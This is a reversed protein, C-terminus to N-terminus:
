SPVALPWRRAPVAPTDRLTPYLRYFIGIEFPARRTFDGLPRKSLNARSAQRGVAPWRAM